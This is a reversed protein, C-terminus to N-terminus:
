KRKTGCESCFKSDAANQAGCETCFWKNDAPKPAGCESCFKGSNVYGCACTWGDPAEPKKAGCESCFKGTNTAGCACQWGANEAPAATKRETERQAQQQQMQAANTASASAMFGGAAGMGVGMGMFAQASGGSNSGANEMGRAIAGQIYGERVAADGLMAGQNRMNILKKSEEDYSVSAIGVSVIEFGRLKKWDEDLETAMYRSLERTKSVVQSIRINDVSMRNIAAQLAELFESLYQENIDKIDVHTASRPIAEAFFKIPDTVKISYTGHARLFLESNYFNDFYNVPSPTGFKIGKIEQLNIYFVQQKQSPTGGYRVRGFAEKLTDGFQGNFLSPASSHEVKYYGEEATYDVIKGGDVLMMFQNPYVHIVSGNSVIDETGKKNANRKDKARVKVGKVFVTTDSMEDAEIVEQWQDALSGGVAGVFAKIIGMNM